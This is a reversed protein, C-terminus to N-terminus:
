VNGILVIQVRHDLFALSVDIATSVTSLHYAYANELVTSELWRIAMKVGIQQYPALHALGIQFANMARSVQLDLTVTVHALAM